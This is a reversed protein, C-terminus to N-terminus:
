GNPIGFMGPTMAMGEAPEPAPGYLREYLVRLMGATAGWIVRDEYPMAYFYRRLGGAQEFFRREHNKPNMLFAFPTEFIEAVEAPSPTLVFGPKVFAVVPTIDYGTGTQYASSLGAIEVHEADLGVEEHAERLATEWPTEGPDTRGGPFAIQGTHKRLTDARRTLLVTVGGEHEILPVLVAAPTLTRAGPNQAPNLDFDSNIQRKAPDYAAIPDLKSAIWDRMEEPTM